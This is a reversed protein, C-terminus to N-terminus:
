KGLGARVAHAFAMLFQSRGMLDSMVAIYTQREGPALVNFKLVAMCLTSHRFQHSNGDEPRPFGGLLGLHFVSQNAGGSHDRCSGYSGCQRLLNDFVGAIARLEVRICIALVQPRAIRVGIAAVKTIAPLVAVRGPLAMGLTMRRTASLSIFAPKATAEIQLVHHKM